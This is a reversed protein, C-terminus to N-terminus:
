GPFELLMGRFLWCILCLTATILVLAGVSVWFWWKLELKGQEPM